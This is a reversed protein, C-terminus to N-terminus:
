FFWHYQKLSFFIYNKLVFNNFNTCMYIIINKLFVKKQPYGWDLAIAVDKGIDRYHTSINYTWKLINQEELM